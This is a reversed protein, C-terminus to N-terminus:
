PACLITGAPYYRCETGTVMLISVSMTDVRPGPNKRVELTFVLTDLKLTGQEITMVAGGDSFTGGGFQEGAAFGTAENEFCSSGDRTACTWRYVFESSVQLQDDPDTSDSGDLVLPRLLSAVRNGGKIM